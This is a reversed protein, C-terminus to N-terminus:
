QGGTRANGGSSLRQRTVSLHVFEFAVYGGMSLGCVIARDIHLDDLLAASDRAMDDMTSIEGTLKTEGLGRLDPAVARFGAATVAELQDSWMSKDFPFGHLLLVVPGSGVEIYAMEVGRVAVVNTALRDNM